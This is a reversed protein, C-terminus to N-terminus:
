TEYWYEYLLYLEEIGAGGAVDVELDDDDTAAHMNIGYLPTVENAAVAVALAAPVGVAAVDDEDQFTLTYTDATDSWLGWVRVCAYYNAIGAILTHNNLVGAALTMAGLVGFRHHKNLSKATGPLMESATFSPPNNIMVNYATGLQDAVVVEGATNVLPHLAGASDMANILVQFNEQTYIPIGNVWEAHIYQGGIDPWSTFWESIPTTKRKPPGWPDVM